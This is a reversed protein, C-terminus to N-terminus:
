LGSMSVMVRSSGQHRCAADAYVATLDPSICFSLPISLSCCRRRSSRLESSWRSSTVGSRTMRKIFITDGFTWIMCRRAFVAQPHQRCPRRSCRRPDIPTAFPWKDASLYEAETLLEIAQAKAAAIAQARATWRAARAHAVAGWRCRLRGAGGEMPQLSALIRIEAPERGATRRADL